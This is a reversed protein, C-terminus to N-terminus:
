IHWIAPPHGNPVQEQRTKSDGEQSGVFSNERAGQGSTSMRGLRPSSLAPNSGANATSINGTWWTLNEPKKMNLRTEDTIDLPLWRHAAGCVIFRTAFCHLSGKTRFSRIRREFGVHKNVLSRVRRKKERKENTLKKNPGPNIWMRLPNIFRQQLLRFIEVRKFICHSSELPSQSTSVKIQLNERKRTKM